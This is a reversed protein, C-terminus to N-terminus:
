RLLGIRRRGHDSDVCRSAFIFVVVVVGGLSGGTALRSGIHLGHVLRSSGFVGVFTAVIVRRFVVVSGVTGLRLDRGFSLGVNPTSRM